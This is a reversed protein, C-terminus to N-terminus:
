ITQYVQKYYLLSDLILADEVHQNYSAKGIAKVLSFAKYQNEKKKDQQILALIATESFNSVAYYPYISAIFQAVITLVRQDLGLLRHSIYAEAILGIAVAEGHLLPVTTQWSLSELAHGITHGFNLIKRRGKETPDSAVISQKISVSKQIIDAWDAQAIDIGSILQWYSSDAILAHKIVEAFGSRLQEFPLTKFFAPYLCVMQPNSFLGIGNKLQLFDIGLKGGVSADVQALLTTPIQVFDIGRKFTAACFGGMDGIVGGGLNLLISKRTAKADMLQKWIFQCSDITKYCEGSQIQIVSFSYDKLADKLVPLCYEVTNEDVLVFITAYTNDSLLAQLAAFQEAEFVISYDALKIM